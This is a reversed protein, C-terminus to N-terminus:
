LNLPCRAYLRFIRAVVVFFSLLIIYFITFNQQLCLVLTKEDSVLCVGCVSCCCLEGGFYRCCVSVWEGSRLLQLSAVAASGWCYQVVLRQVCSSIMFLLVLLVVVFLLLLSGLLRLPTVSFAAGTAGSSFPLVLWVSLLVYFCCFLLMTFCFRLVEDVCMWVCMREDLCLPLSLCAFIFDVLLLSYFCCLALSHSHKWRSLTQVHLIIFLM